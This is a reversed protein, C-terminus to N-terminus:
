FAYGLGLDFWPMQFTGHDRSSEPKLACDSDIKPDLKTSKSKIIGLGINVNYGNQWFWQYGFTGAATRSNGKTSEYFQCSGQTEDIITEESQWQGVLIANSLYFADSFGGENSFVFDLRLGLNHSQFEYNDEFENFNAYVAGLNIYPTLRFMFELDLLHQEEVAALAFLPIQQIRLNLSKDNSGEANVPPSFVAWLCTPVVLRHFKLM